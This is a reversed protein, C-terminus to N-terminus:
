DYKFATNEINNNEPKVRRQLFIQQAIGKKLNAM